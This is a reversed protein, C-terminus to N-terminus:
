PKEVGALRAYEAAARRIHDSAYELASLRPTNYFARILREVDLATGAAAEAERIRPDPPGLHRPDIGAKFLVCHWCPHFAPGEQLMGCEACDFTTRRKRPAAESSTM